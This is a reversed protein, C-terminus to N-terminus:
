GIVGDVAAASKQQEEHRRIVEDLDLSITRKIPKGIELVRFGVRSYIRRVLETSSQGVIQAAQLQEKTLTITDPFEWGTREDRVKVPFTRTFITVLNTM